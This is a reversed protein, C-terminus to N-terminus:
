PGIPRITARIRRLPEVLGPAAALIMNGQTFVEPAGLYDNCWGGAETVLVLGAAVDWANIHAEYYGDLRGDARAYVFDAVGQGAADDSEAM